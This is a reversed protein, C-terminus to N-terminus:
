RKASGALRQELEPLWNPVVVLQYDDKSSVLGLFRGDRAVDYNGALNGVLMSAAQTVATDRSLVRLSPTLALKASMIATGSRYLIKTGDTSWAPENGGEASIQVRAAPDPFSRVYVENRGSESSTLAVWRGDPSFRQAFEDAPSALYPVSTRTSDLRVRFLSWANNNLTTYLVSRGDPSMTVVSTLARATFLKQAPSGGDAPQSWIVFRERDGNGLYVVSKGDPTWTPSAAAGVSSLRSFTGTDMDYIWIDSKGQDGAVVAIRRGDPSLRPTAYERVDRTVPIASGDRSVWSLQSKTGGRATILAGDRSVFIGSNGNQGSNVLVPDLVPAPRGALHRRSRDLTAAM